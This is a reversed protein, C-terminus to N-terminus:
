SYMDNPYIVFGFTGNMDIPLMTLVELKPNNVRFEKYIKYMSVVDPDDDHLLEDSPGATELVHEGYASMVTRQFYHLVRQKAVGMDKQEHRSLILSLEPDPEDQCQRDNYFRMRFEEAFLGGNITPAVIFKYAENSSPLLSM